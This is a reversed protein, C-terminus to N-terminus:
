KTHFFADAFDYNFREFEGTTFELVDLMATSVREVLLLAV